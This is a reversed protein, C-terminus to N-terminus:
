GERFLDEPKTVHLQLLKSTVKYIEVTDDSTGQRDMLLALGAWKRNGLCM